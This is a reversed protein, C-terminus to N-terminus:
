AAQRISTLGVVPWRAAIAAWARERDAEEAPLFFRTKGMRDVVCRVGDARLSEVFQNSTDADGLPLLEIRTGGTVADPYSNAIWGNALTAMEGAELAELAEDASVSGGTLRKVFGQAYEDPILRGLIQEGDDTEMRYVVVNSKPLKDWIPLLAGTVVYFWQEEDTGQQNLEIEWLRRAEDPSVIRWMERELKYRKTTGQVGRPTILLIDDLGNVTLSLDKPFGFCIVRNTMANVAIRCTGYKAAAIRADDFAVPEIKDRRLMHLLRTVAGTAPDRYIVDDSIKVLSDAKLWEIGRDFTGNRIAELRCEDLRQRYANGFAEQRDCTMGSMARLFRRVTPLDSDALFAGNKRLLIGTEREFWQVNLNPVKGDKLDMLFRIWADSALASELNDDQTFLEQSAAHRQGRTIAGLAEMGAAVTSIMRRDAWLDCTVLIYVPAQVEDARHTRGLGQIAIDARWGAQLLYHRRLRQNRCTRAADYSAGTGGAATSFALIKKQDAQFLRVDEAVDAASREELKREGTMPGPVLRRSRGTVEAVQEPGFFAILQDLPCDPVDLQKIEQVLADRAALAQPDVVPDGNKDLIPTMVTQGGQKTIRHKVVPFQNLVFGLLIDRATADVDSYDAQKADELSRALNAEYTNTIQIVPSHGNQVDALIQPILRRMKLSALFAQFFRDKAMNFNANLLRQASSSAKMAKETVRKGGILAIGTSVSAKQLEVNIQQWIESLRDQMQREADTLRIEFREYAVGDMSLNAAMYMGMAKLDRAVLELANIGGQQMQTFFAQPTPFATGRGWLGLRVAYGLGVIDGASTASAYVVRANPLSAQLDVLARGQQSVQNSGEFLNKGNHMANRGNQAEDILIVGDGAPGFWDIIQKMREESRLLAYTVFLIGNQAPVDQRPDFARLQLVDAPRGGVAVWDRVAASMLGQNESIWVARRRGQAWNDAIIGAGCRGKGVGTGHGMLFGRRPPQAQPNLPDGPLYGEHAQGAYVITELQVDSLVGKDVLRRDLMPRYTPEPMAISALAASEVLPTPHPKAGPIRMRSLKYAHFLVDGAEAQVQPELVEYALPEVKGGAIGSGTKTQPAVRAPLADVGALIAAADFTAGVTETFLVGSVDSVTFPTGDLGPAAIRARAALTDPLRGALDGLVGNVRESPDATPVVGDALLFVQCIEDEALTGGFHDRGALDLARAALWRRQLTGADVGALGEIKALAALVQRPSRHRPSVSGGAKRLLQAVAALRDAEPIAADLTEKAALKRALKMVDM